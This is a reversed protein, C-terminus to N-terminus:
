KGSRTEVEVELGGKSSYGVTGYDTLVRARYPVDRLAACSILSPFILAILFFMGWKKLLAPAYKVIAWTGTGVIAMAIWDAAAAAGESPLEHKAVFILLGTVILHRLYSAFANM